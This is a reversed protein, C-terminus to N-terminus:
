ADAREIEDFMWAVFPHIAHLFHDHPMGAELPNALVAGALALVDEYGRTNKRLGSLVAEKAFSHFAKRTMLFYAGEVVIFYRAFKRAAYYTNSPIEGTCAPQQHALAAAFCNRAFALRSKALRADPRDGECGSAELARLIDTGTLRTANYALAFRAFRNQRLAEVSHAALHVGHVVDYQAALAQEIGCLRQADQEHLADSVVLLYDLDSIGAIADGKEISGHLYTCVLRDGFLAACRATADEVLPMFEKQM